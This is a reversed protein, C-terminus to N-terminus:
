SQFALSLRHVPVQGAPRHHLRHQEEGHRHDQAVKQLLTVVHGVRQDDAAKEARVRQRRHTRRERQHRKQGGNQQPQRQAAARHKGDAKSLPVHAAQALADACRKRQQRRHRRNQARQHVAKGLLNEVEHAHRSRHAGQHAFVQQDDERAQRGDKQVVVVRRKQARHAIGSRREDKQGDRRHHVDAEVEPEHHPELAAHGPRRLRRHDRLVDGAHANEEVRAFFPGVQTRLPRPHPKRAHLLDGTKRRQGTDLLRDHIQADEHHLPQHVAKAGRHHGGKGRRHLDVGEGIQRHLVKAVGNGGEDGLVVARAVLFAHARPQAPRHLHGHAETQEDRREDPEKARIQHAQKDVCALYAHRRDDGLAHAIQADLAREVEGDAAQEEEVAEVPGHAPRAHGHHQRHDRQARAHRQGVRKGGDRRQSYHADPPRHGDAPKQGVRRPKEVVEGM